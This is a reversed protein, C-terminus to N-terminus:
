QITCHNLPLTSILKNLILFLHQSEMELLDTLQPSLNVTGHKERMHHLTVYINGDFLIQMCHGVFLELFSVKDSQNPDFLMTSLAPLSAFVHLLQRHSSLCKKMTSVLTSNVANDSSSM